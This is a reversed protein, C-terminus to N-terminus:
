RSSASNNTDGPVLNSAGSEFAVYRGDSSISPLSSREDGQTGNSAISVRETQGTQRDHVFVDSSNNTDGQVLNDAFSIFAVYRENVAFAPYASWNNAPNGYSDVSALKKEETQRDHVFIHMEYGSEDPELHMAYAMFAVFRGSGSISPDGGMTCIPTTSRLYLDYSPKIIQNGFRNDLTSADVGVIQLFITITILVSISIIFYKKM